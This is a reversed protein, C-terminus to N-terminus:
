SAQIETDKDIKHTITSRGDMHCTLVTSLRAPLLCEGIGLGEGREASARAGRHAPEVVQLLKGYYM